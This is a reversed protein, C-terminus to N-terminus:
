MMSGDCDAGPVHIVSASAWAGIKRHRPRRLPDAAIARDAANTRFRAILLRAARGTALKMSRVAMELPV